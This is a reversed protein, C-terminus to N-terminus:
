GRDAGEMEPIVSVRVGLGDHGDPGLVAAVYRNWHRQCMWVTEPLDAPFDALGEGIWQCWDCTKM